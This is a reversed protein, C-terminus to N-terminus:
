KLLIMKRTDFFSGAQIRYLYVGSALGSGDFQVTKFGANQVGDVLTAVERGLVDYVKLSTFGSVQIGFGIKTSPNFPNPYNQHLVYNTPVLDRDVVGTSTGTSPIVIGQPNMVSDAALNGLITTPSTGDLNAKRIKGNGTTGLETWYLKNNAVDLTLYEPTALGTLLTGPSTGDLNARKITNGNAETWYIRGGGIDLAVGVPGNLGTVLDQQSTGNLNARRIMGRGFDAWYMKGGSANVAIGRLNESGAPVFSILIEENTGDLNSRRIKNGELLKTSTWYMKGAAVDLAFGRFSSEASGNPITDIGAFTQSGTSVHAGTFRNSAWYIKTHTTDLGIGQPLSGSPLAVTIVNSGDTNARRLKPSSFTSEVWYIQQGATEGTITMCCAIILFARLSSINM